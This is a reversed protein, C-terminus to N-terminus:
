LRIVVKGSARGTQLYEFAEVASGLGDFYRDVVPRVLGADVLRAVRALGDADPAVPTSFVRVAGARWLARLRSRWKELPGQLLTALSTEADNPAWDSSLIHCYTGGRRVVGPALTAEMHRWAMPDLVADVGGQARVVDDFAERTHDITSTAGLARVREANRGSCTGLVRGFGLARRAYQVAFSGVGGSAAQVLLAQEARREQNPDGPRLGAQDFVQLVTLAVLPLAAADELPVSAPARAFCRAPAATLRALSGWPSGVLPLMGFVADGVEFGSGEGASVVVGSVDFGAIRPKPVLVSPQHNRLQKFDVPNLAAARVEVVVFGPPAPVAPAAAANTRLRLVSAPDGHTEYVVADMTASASPPAVAFRLNATLQWVETGVLSLLPPLLLSPLLRMPDVVLPPSSRHAPSPAPAPRLSVM